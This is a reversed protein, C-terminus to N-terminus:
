PARKVRWLREWWRPRRQGVFRVGAPIRLPGGIPYMGTDMKVVRRGKFMLWGRSSLSQDAEAADIAAQIAPGADEGEPPPVVRYTTM